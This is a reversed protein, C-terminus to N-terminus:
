ESPFDSGFLEAIHEPCPILFHVELKKKAPAFLEFLSLFDGDRGFLEHAMELMFVQILEMM